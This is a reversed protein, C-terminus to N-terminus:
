PLEDMTAPRADADPPDQPAPPLLAVRAVLMLRATEGKSYNFGEVTGIAATGPPLDVSAEVVALGDPHEVFWEALRNRGVREARGRTLFVLSDEHYGTRALPLDAAPDVAAIQAAVASSPWVARASSLVGMFLTTSLTIMALGAHEIGGVTNGRWAHRVGLATLVVGVLCLVGILAANRTSLDDGLLLVIAMPGAVLALGIVGWLVVGARGIRARSRALVVVARASLLAIAPYLVLTYHPLKTAVLEFVIWSPVIWALLLADPTRMRASKTRRVRKWARHLALLTVLSGPFFLVPLLVLHYGPPGWHSEKAGGARGLTEDFIIAFYESYGVIAGVALAWPLAIALVIAVGLLPRTCRVFRWGGVLALVGLALLVVMPTIPGKALVGLGVLVWLALSTRVPVAGTDRHARWASALMWMAGATCALLLEDARAQRADWLVIPCLALMLGAIFGEDRRYLVCGARWTALVALIACLVSPLRYWGIRQLRQDAGAADRDVVWAVAGQMWYILPPKNLRPRDQIKPVLVGDLDGAAASQMVQRSAQAFRSEDRDVPPVSWLGPLYALLCVVM